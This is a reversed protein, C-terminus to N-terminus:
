RQEHNRAGIPIHSQDFYMPILLNNRYGLRTIYEMMGLFENHIQFRYSPNQSLDLTFFSGTRDLELKALIAARYDKWEQIDKDRLAQV